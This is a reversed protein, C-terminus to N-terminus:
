RRLIECHDHLIPPRGGSYHGPSHVTRMAKGASTVAKEGLKEETRFSMAIDKEHRGEIWAGRCTWAWAQIATPELTLDIFKFRCVTENTRTHILLDGSLE